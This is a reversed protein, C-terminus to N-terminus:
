PSAPWTHAARSTGSGPRARRRRKRGARWVQVVRGGSVDGGTSVDFASEEIQIRVSFASAPEVPLRRSGAGTRHRPSRLHGQPCLPGSEWSRPSRPSSRSAAGSAVSTGPSSRATWAAPRLTRGNPSFVGSTVRRVHGTSRQEAAGSKVDWVIVTGDEAGTATMRGDPSFVASVAASPPQGTDSAGRRNTPRRDLGRRFQGRLRTAM